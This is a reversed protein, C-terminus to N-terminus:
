FIYTIGFKGGGFMGGGYTVFTNSANLEANLGFKQNFFYRGGVQVGTVFASYNESYNERGNHWSRYYAHELYFGINAGAYFDFKEPM